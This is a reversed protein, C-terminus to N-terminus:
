RPIVPLILASPRVADHFVTQHAVRMESDSWFDKGTNHNRDFNPFDSSSVDLRIRHGPMFVNGTPNLGITYEYEQGPEILTPNEYGDRYSARLIGYTLNVATGDPQVDILKATWDTDPASSSAFMKLAVPGTVEIADELVPTQFVLIDKRHALPAQDRAAAQADLGMMSMVPDNPNYDYTDAPSNESPSDTTLVGDGFATNSSGESSLFYNTYQTRALPWENEWRWKNEGMVFLRVPPEDALGNDEGKFQWDYWRAIVEEYPWDADPGLDLPGQNREFSDPSHGWPGIVIRHQERIDDPGEDVVGTFNDITGIIRDWWGTVQCTPVKVNKWIDKFNWFDINQERLYRKLQPTMTSFVDDPLDDFPTFWIWKGREVERWWTAADTWSQPGSEDGIRARADVAMQYTWELRRGTEFIGFNLDMLSPSMGGAFVATLSPPAEGLLRWICWSPYSHGWTGIQGDCWPQKAAWEIADYGDEADEQIPAASFQWEFDGDSAYRGRVDQVVVTYGRPALSKAVHVYQGRLKDYPTRCLLVPYAKGDAPRYVDSRLITGNRTTMEVNEDITIPLLNTTTM